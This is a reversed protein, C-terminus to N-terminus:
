ALEDQYAQQQAARQQQLQDRDTKAQEVATQQEDVEAQLQQQQTM